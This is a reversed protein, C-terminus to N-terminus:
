FVLPIYQKKSKDFERKLREDDSDLPTLGANIWVQKLYEERRKHFKRLKKARKRDRLKSIDAYEPHISLSQVEKIDHGERVCIGLSAKGLDFAYVLKESM